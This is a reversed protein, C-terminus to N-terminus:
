PALPDRSAPLSVIVRGDVTCRDAGCVVRDGCRTAERRVPPDLTVASRVPIVRQADRTAAIDGGRVLVMRLDDLAGFDEAAFPLPRAQLRTSERAGGGLLRWAQPATTTGTHVLARVRGDADFGACVWRATPDPASLPLWQARAVDYLGVVEHTIPPREPLEVREVWRVLAHHDYVDLVRAGARDVTWARWGQGERWTCALSERSADHEAGRDCPGNRTLTRGDSGPIVSSMSGRLVALWPSEPGFLTGAAADGAPCLALGRDGWARLACGAPDPVSLRADAEDGRRRELAGSARLTLARGDRLPVEVLVGEPPAAADIPAVPTPPRSTARPIVPTSACALACLSVLALPRLPVAARSAAM